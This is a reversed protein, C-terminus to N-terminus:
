RQCTPCYYSSRGGIQQNLITGGCIKCQKERYVNMHGDYKLGRQIADKMVKECNAYVKKLWPKPLDRFPTDPRVGALFLGESAYINGIGSFTEQELLLEKITTLTKARKLYRKEMVEDFSDRWTPRHVATETRLVDPGIGKEVNKFGHVHKISGFLRADHFRLVHLRNGDDIVFQVRVDSNTNKRKGEVYAFVSSDDDYSWYGTMAHSVLMYEERGDLYAVVKKGIRAFDRIKKGVLSDVDYSGNQRFVNAEKIVPLPFFQAKVRDRLFSAFHDVEPLEPM